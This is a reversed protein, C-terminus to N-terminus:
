VWRSFVPSPPHAVPGGFTDISGFGADDILALLVNPAGEPAKPGPIMAWDAVSEKLTRGATGGFTRDPIPLESRDQVFKGMATALEAKLARLGEKDTQAVSKAPSGPLAREIALRYEEDFVAIVGATGPPLKEALDQM